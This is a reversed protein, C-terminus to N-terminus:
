SRHFSVSRFRAPDSSVITATECHSAVTTEGRRVRKQTSAIESPSKKAFRDSRSLDLDHLTILCAEEVRLGYHYILAFLARDRPDPIARFFRTLEDQTLYKPLQM